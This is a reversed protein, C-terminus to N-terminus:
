KRWTPWRLPLANVLVATAGLLPFRRSALRRLTMESWVLPDMLIFVVNLPRAPVRLRRMFVGIGRGWIGANSLEITNSVCVPELLERLVPLEPLRVVFLLQRGHPRLPPDLFWVTIAASDSGVTRDRQALLNVELELSLLLLWLLVMGRRIRFVVGSGIKLINSKAPHIITYFYSKAM